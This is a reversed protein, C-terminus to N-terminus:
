IIHTFTAVNIRGTECDVAQTRGFGSTSTAFEVPTEGLFGDGAALLRQGEQEINRAANVDRDHIAGCGACTWTRDALTLDVKIQHCVHCRKSSPFWRDVRQLVAAYWETKYELQRIAEGIGADHFSKALRTRCLGNLALDEICIIGFRRVVGSTFKHLFDLRQNAIHEQMRGVRRKWKARRNSGKTKRALGRQLLKLKHESRRFYAQTECVEGTGFVAFSNLGFDIGVSDVGLTAAPREREMAVSLYWRGHRETIRGNLIKGDFRLPEALNVLGLKPVKVWNGALSFKDNNLVFGGIKHSRRRPRPFRLKPNTPKAKYYTSIARRLDAIAGEAACKTVERCFPFETDLKARFAKKIENWDCKQGLSKIRRYEALCWNWAFRAVGACRLFYAQQEATPNLRMKHGSQITM